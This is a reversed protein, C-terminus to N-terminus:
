AASQPGPTGSQASSGSLTRTREGGGEIDLVSGKRSLPEEVVAEVQTEALSEDRYEPEEETLEIPSPSRYGPTGLEPHFHTGPTEVIPVTHSFTVTPSSLSGDGAGFLNNPRTPSKDSTTAEEAGAAACDPVSSVFFCLFYPFILGCFVTLYTDVPLTDFSFVNFFYVWCVRNSRYM